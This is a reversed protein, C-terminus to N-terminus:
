EYRLAEIPNVAMARRSPIWCALLTIQILVAAGVILTFPDGPRIGFLFSTLLRSVLWATPLGLTLGWGILMLGEGLVLKRVHTPQAGMATRIAIDRRRSAVSLSLVSYVGVVMLATGLVGLGMLVYMAFTRPAFSDSRIQEFTKLNEIAVTPDILRLERQVSAMVSRPDAATRILLHKSLAPSQWLSFYVQPGAAETLDDMRGNTVVGIIEIPTKENGLLWLNRGIARTHQIYREAFAQNVIAVKVDPGSDNSRFDRGDVIAMSLLRFYGPTVVRVPLWITKKLDMASPRNVYLGTPFSNGTLPVGWAFAAQQVGPASSVRELARRHFSEWQGQVATVSMTLVNASNYGSPVRSLNLMSRILLGASVLLALSLATQLITVGRLLRREGRSASSRSGGSKLVEIPDVRSARWAPYLGAFVTALISSALAFLLMPWGIGVADLRPVAQKGFLQFLRAIGFALGVGLAGGSLALLLTEVGVQRFLATRRVGLASRVAFEQQRQLGRVLLLAAANGCAILLVLAAASFLPILIRSGERNTEETLSVVKPFIGAFEREVQSQRETITTLETQAEKRNASSRLRAVVNWGPEKLATPDMQAPIWFDVKANENYNPEKSQGPSPLFRVGRPMIGVVISPKELHHLRVPKGVINPDAHLERQWFDYGVIVVPAPTAGTESDLFTRGLLPQLGVTRFYEATVVMGQMSVSGKPLVLFTFAWSYPAVDQLSKSQTQWARWQAAAWGRTLAEGTQRASTVLILQHSDRFPLPSLLVGHIVTFAASTAGIGLALTLVVIPLFAREKLLVRLGFRLDRLM